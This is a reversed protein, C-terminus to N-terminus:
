VRLVEPAALAVLFADAEDEGGQGKPSWRIKPWRRRVEALVADKPSNPNMGLVMHRAVGAKVTRLIIDQEELVLYTVGEFHSLARVTKFGRHVGLEEVIAVDPCHGDKRLEEIWDSLSRYYDLLARPRTTKGKPPRWVAKAILRTGDVLTMGTSSSSVDIGLVLM